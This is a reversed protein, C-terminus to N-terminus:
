VDTEKQIPLVNIDHSPSVELKTKFGCVTYKQLIVMIILAISTLLSVVNVLIYWYDGKRIAYYIWLLVGILRLAMFYISINHITRNKIPTYILPINYLVNIVNAVIGVILLELQLDENNTDM